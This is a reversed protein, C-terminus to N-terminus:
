FTLHEIEAEKGLNDITWFHIDSKRLCYVELHQKFPGGALPELGKVKEYVRDLIEPDDLFEVKGSIRM